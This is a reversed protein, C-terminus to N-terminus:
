NILNINKTKTIKKDSKAESNITEKSIKVAKEWEKIDSKAESNITEKTQWNNNSNKKGPKQCASNKEVKV